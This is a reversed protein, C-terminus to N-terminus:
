EIARKVWGKLFKDQTPNKLCINLYKRVNAAQAKYLMLTDKTDRLKGYNIESTHKCDALAIRLSDITAVYSSDSIVKVEASPFTVPAPAPAPVGCSALLIVAFLIAKM